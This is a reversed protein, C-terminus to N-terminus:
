RMPKHKFHLNEVSAGKRHYKHMGNNHSHTQFTNKKKHTMLSAGKM